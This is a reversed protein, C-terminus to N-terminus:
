KNTQKNEKERENEQRTTKQKTIIIDTIVQKRESERFGFM